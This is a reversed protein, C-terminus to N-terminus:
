YTVVKGRIDTNPFKIEFISPDLSPYVVGNLTAAPIDYAYVSYGATDGYKNIIEVKKVTQVGEVVDLINYLNSLIIPQNIQWNDLTFYAKLSNICNLIVERSVYSPRLTIEFNVGINIIFADKINVTDTLMRYQTLYTKLNEKLMLSPTTLKKDNDYGLVYISISSPDIVGPTNQIVNDYTVLDKTVYAKAVKGFKSPMNYAQALYDQQTVARLQTPFQLLTNLKIEETTDGDGGGAAPFSNNVSVSNIVVQGMNASAVTGGFFETTKNSVTNITGAPVNAVAGGGTLYTVTLTTNGPALGYTYTTTFNTPDYATNLKTLGDLLGIGSKYSNPVVAEDAVSNIGPGFQLEVTSDTKIRTAFRRPVKVTQLYYPVQQNTADYNPLVGELNAIAELVTDQALYPVEYWKHGDSDVVNLIEIVNTDTIDVTSFKVPQGFSFTTTKVTGSIAQVTKKLLFFDPNGFGDVSYVTIDTPSTSGSVAFNISEPIYFTTTGTQGGAVTMGDQILLAYTFDPVYQATPVNYTSPVLQYVDLDVTAASTTKPRYGLMYALTYLNKPQKAYQLFTEQIQNDLYFSLVDGVYSAMDIFMSGPSAVTFDNYTTPFYAKAYEILATKLDTFDKNIYRIDKSAM